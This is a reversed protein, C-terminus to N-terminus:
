PIPRRTSVWPKSSWALSFDGDPDSPINKIQATEFTVPKDRWHQALAANLERFIVPNQILPHMRLAILCGFPVNGCEVIKCFSNPHRM